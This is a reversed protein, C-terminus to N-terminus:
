EYSINEYKEYDEGLYGTYLSENESDSRGRESLFGSDSKDETRTSGKNSRSDKQLNRSNSRTYGYFYEPGYFAEIVNSKRPWKNIEKGYIYDRVKEIDTENDLLIHVVKEISPNISDGDTGIPYYNM